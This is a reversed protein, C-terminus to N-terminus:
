IVGRDIKPEQLTGPPLFKLSFLERDFLDKMFPCFRILGEKIIKKVENTRTAFAVPSYRLEIELIAKDKENHGLRFHPKNAVESHSVHQNACPGRSLDGLSDLIEYVEASGLFAGDGLEKKLDLSDSIRGLFRYGISGLSSNSECAEILDGPVYRILPTMQTFPYLGTLVLVGRGTSIKRNTGFAVIETIGFMDFYFLNTKSCYQASYFLESLSYRNGVSCGWFDSVWKRSHETQYQATAQINEIQKTLESYGKTYMYASLELVGGFSGTLTNIRRDQGDIKYNKKLLTIAQYNGELSGLSVPFSYASSPIQLRKGNDWDSLSLVLVQEKRSKDLSLEAFFQMLYSQEQTSRHVILPSGNTTGSSYSSFSYTAFRSCIEWGAKEVDSRYLLPLSGLQDVGFPESNNLHKFRDAYFISQQKAQQITLDFLRDKLIARLKHNFPSPISFLYYFPAINKPIIDVFNFRDPLKKLLNKRITDLTDSM